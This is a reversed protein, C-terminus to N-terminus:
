IHGLFSSRYPLFWGLSLKIQVVLAVLASPHSLLLVGPHGTARFTFRGSTTSSPALTFLLEVGQGQAALDTLDSITSSPATVATLAQTASLQLPLAISASVMSLDAQQLDLSSLGSVASSPAAAAALAPTQSVNGTVPYGGLASPQLDLGSLGSIISSPATAGAPAQAQLVNGATNAATLASQQLDLGSLGSVISSPATAGAPAQAPSQQAPLAPSGTIASATPRPLAPIALGSWGSATSFPAKPRESVQLTQSVQTSPDLISAPHRLDDASESITSSPATLAPYVAPLAAALARKSLSLSELQASAAASAGELGTTANATGTASQM